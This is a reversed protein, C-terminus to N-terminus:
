ASPTEGRPNSDWLHRKRVSESLTHPCDFYSPHRHRSCPTPPPRAPLFLSPPLPASPLAPLCSALSFSILPHMHLRQEVVSMIAFHHAGRITASTRRFQPGLSAALFFSAVGPSEYAALGQPHAPRWIHPLKLNHYHSLTSLALSACGIMTALFTTVSRM